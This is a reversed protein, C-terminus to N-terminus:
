QIHRFVDLVSIHRFVDLVSFRDLQPQKWARRLDITQGLLPNLKAKGGMATSHIPVTIALVTELWAHAAGLYGAFTQETLDTKAQLNAGETVTFLYAALLPFVQGPTISTVSVDDYGQTGRWTAFHTARAEFTRDNNKRVGGRDAGLFHSRFSEYTARAPSPLAQVHRAYPLCRSYRLGLVTRRNLTELSRRRSHKDGRQHTSHATTSVIPSLSPAHSSRSLCPRPPACSPPPQSRCNADVLPCQHQRRLLLRYLAKPFKADTVSSSSLSSGCM